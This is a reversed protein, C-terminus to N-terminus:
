GLGYHTKNAYEILKPILLEYMEIEMRADANLLGLPMRCLLDLQFTAAKLLLKCEQNTTPLSVLVMDTDM